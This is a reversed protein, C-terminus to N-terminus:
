GLGGLAGAEALQRNTAVATPVGQPYYVHNTQHIVVSPGSPAPPPIMQRSQENSFIRVNGGSKYGLEPGQEGVTFWGDGITGGTAYGSATLSVRKDGTFRLLDAEAQQLKLDAIVNVHKDGTFRLLDAEAKTLDAKVRAQVDKTNALNQMSWLVASMADQAEKQTKASTLGDMLSKIVADSLGAAKLQAPAVAAVLSNVMGTVGADTSKPFLTSFKQLQTDTGNVLEQVLPAASPGLNILGAAVEPGLKQALVLINDHWKQQAVVQKELQTLYQDLSPQIKKVMGSVASAGGSAMNQASTRADDQAKTLADVKANVADVSAQYRNDAQEKATTYANDAATKRNSTDETVQATKDQAAQYDSEAHTQADTAAASAAAASAAAATTSNYESQANALNQTATTQDALAQAVAREWTAREAPSQASALGQQAAALAIDAARKAFQAAELRSQADTSQKAADDAIRKLDDAEKTAATVRDRANKEAAKTAKLDADARAKIADRIKGAAKVAADQEAKALKKTADAQEKGAKLAAEAAKVAPSKGTSAKRGGGGGGSKTPNAADVAADWAGMPDVFGTVASSIANRLDLAAQLQANMAKVARATSDIIKDAGAAAGDGASSMARGASNAAGTLYLMGNAGSQVADGLQNIVSTQDKGTIGIGDLATKLDTGSSYADRLTSLLKDNSVGAVDGIAGVLLDFAQRSDNAGQTLDSEAGVVTGYVDILRSMEDSSYIGANGSALLEETFDQLGQGSMAQNPNQKVMDQYGRSAQLAAAAQDILQQKFSDMAPGGQVVAAIAQKANIGLKEMEDAVGSDAWDKSFKASTASTLSGTIQDLTDRLSQLQAEHAAEKQQANQQAAGWASMLATAGIIAIGLPGGFAALMSSGAGRVATGLTAVRIQATAAAAGLTSLSRGSSAALAQQLRMEDGFGRFTDTAMMWRIALTDGASSLQQSALHTILMATAIASVEPPIGHSVSGLGSLTSTVGGIIPALGQFTAGVGSGFDEILTKATQAGQTEVGQLPTLMSEGANRVGAVMGQFAGLTTNKLNQAAGPFKSEIGQRLAEIATDADITGKTVKKQADVVSINLTEALLQWAPVGAEALQLMEEASLKGKTQIQGLALAIQDFKSADGIAGTADAIAQLTPVIQQTDMGFAALRQAATLANQFPIPVTQDWSYIQGIVANAKQASGTIATFAIDAQQKLNIIDQGSKAVGLGILSVAATRIKSFAQTAADGAVTAKTGIDEVHKGSTVMASDLSRNDAILRVLVSRETM